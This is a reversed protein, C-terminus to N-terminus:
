LSEERVRVSDDIIEQTMSKASVLCNKNRAIEKKLFQLDSDAIYENNGQPEVIKKEFNQLRKSLEDADDFIKKALKQIKRLLDDYEEKKENQM